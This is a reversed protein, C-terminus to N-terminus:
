FLDPIFFPQSSEEQEAGGLVTRIRHSTSTSTSFLFASLSLAVLIIMLIFPLIVAIVARATSIEHLERIAFIELALSWFNALIGILPIWGFLLSPTAAYIVTRLTTSVDKRGGAIYVFIHLIIGTIFLTIIGFIITAVIAVLVVGGIAGFAALSAPLGTLTETVAFNLGIMIGYFAGCISMIIAFYRLADGLSEDKHAILTEIPNLLFGKVNDIFETSMPNKVQQYTRTQPPSLPIRWVKAEQRQEEPLKELAYHFATRPMRDAHDKLSAFVEDPHDARVVKLLAM